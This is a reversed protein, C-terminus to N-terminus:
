RCKKYEGFLEPLTKGEPSKVPITIVMGPRLASSPLCNVEIVYDRALSNPGVIGEITDGSRVRYKELTYRENVAGANIDYVSETLAGDFIRVIDVGSGHLIEALGKRLGPQTALAAAALLTLGVGVRQKNVM